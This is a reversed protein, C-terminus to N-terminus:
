ITQQLLADNENFKTKIYAYAVGSHFRHEYALEIIYRLVGVFIASAACFTSFSSLKTSTIQPDQSQRLTTVANSIDFLFFFGLM